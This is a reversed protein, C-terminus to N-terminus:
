HLTACWRAIFATVEEAAELQPYHGVGDLALVTASPLTQRVWALMHAGSVPDANGWAFALPVTTKTLADLLTNQLTRREEIYGLLFPTVPIGNQDILAEWVDDFDVREHRVIVKRLSRALSNRTTVYPALFPGLRSAMIRQIPQPRHLAPNLGGNLFMVGHLKPGSNRALALQAVTVGYDHAILTADTTKTAALVADFVRLQTQFSYPGVPKSSAGFGLLDFSVCRFRKSLVAIVPDWDISSTPFGHIFVLTPGEGDVRHFIRHGDVALFSGGKLWQTRKM